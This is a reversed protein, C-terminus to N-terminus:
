RFPLNEKTLDCLRFEGFPSKAVTGEVLEAPEGTGIENEASVRFFYENGEQLKRVAYTSTAGDTKDVPMWTNRKADRKEIVYGTVACGGLSTPPQWSLVVSDKMVEAVSLKM